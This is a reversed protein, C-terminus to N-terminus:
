QGPVLAYNHGQFVVMQHQGKHLRRPAGHNRVRHAEIQMAPYDHPIGSDVNRKGAQWGVPLACPELPGNLSYTWTVIPLLDLSTRPPLALSPVVLRPGTTCTLVVAQCLLPWSDQPVLPLCPLLRKHLPAIVLSRVTHPPYGPHLLM